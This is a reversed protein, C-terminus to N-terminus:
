NIRETNRLRSHRIVKNMKNVEQKVRITLKRDKDHPKVENLKSFSSVDDHDAM